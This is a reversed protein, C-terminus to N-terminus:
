SVAQRKAFHFNLIVLLLTPTLHMGFEEAVFAHVFLLALSSLCLIFLYSPVQRIAKLLSIKQWSWYFLWLLLPLLGAGLFITLYGNHAGYLIGSGFDAGINSLMLAFGHGVLIEKTGVDDFLMQWLETRHTLSLLEDLSSGRAFLILMHELAHPFFLFGMVAFLVTLCLAILGLLAPRSQYFVAKVFLAGTLAISLAVWVGRSQLFLIFFSLAALLGTKIMAQGPCCLIILAIQALLSSLMNPHVLGFIQVADRLNGYPSTVYVICLIATVLISVLYISTKYFPLAENKYQIMLCFLSSFGLCMYLYRQLSFGPAISLPISIALSLLYVLLLKYDCLFQKIAQLSLKDTLIKWFLIAAPVLFLLLKAYLFMGAKNGPFQGGGAAITTALILGMLQVTFFFRESRAPIVAM